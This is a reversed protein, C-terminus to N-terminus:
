PDPDPRPTAPSTCAYICKVGDWHACLRSADIEAVLALDDGFGSAKGFRLYEGEPALAFAMGFRRLYEGFPVLRGEQWIEVLRGYEPPLEARVEDADIKALGDERLVRIVERVVGVKHGFYLWAVQSYVLDFTADAYPLGRAADGHAIAPMAADGGDLGREAANRRLIAADGDGPLRNLGHLAVNRGYRARLELLATGYGCGLELVRVVGQRALREEIEVCVGGVRRELDRLGRGRHSQKARYHGERIM